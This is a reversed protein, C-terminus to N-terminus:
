VAHLAGDLAVLRAAIWRTVVSGVGNGCIRYRQTDSLEYEEGADNIGWRTWDSPWSMLRECERPTLRRPRGVGCQHLTDFWQLADQGNGGPAAAHAGMALTPAVICKGEAVWQNSGWKTADTVNLTGMMRALYPPDHMTNLTPMMDESTSANGQTSTVCLVLEDRNHGTQSNGMSAPICPLVEADPQDRTVIQTTDYGVVVQGDTTGSPTNMQAYGRSQRAVLPPLVDGALAVVGHQAGAQLTYMAADIDSIGIGARVDDTSAGTRKGVEQLSIVAQAQQGSKGAAPLSPWVGTDAFVRKAQFDWPTLCGDAGREGVGVGARAAADQKASERPSPHGCLSESLALVEAPDAGGARSALVFIRARRQAPGFYQLDFVRWAAVADDGAVVGGVGRKWGGSPIAVPSGVITSLVTAFDAGASSSLAGPVNEWLLYKAGSEKWVRVQEHFLSSRAGTLGARKGAHSLDQCPSGGSILDCGIYERGDLKLVDGDLRTEPWRFRLVARAHEDIEAHAMCSMGGEELGRSLGGAGAFLEVYQM